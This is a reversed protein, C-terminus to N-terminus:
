NLGVAVIHKMDVYITKKDITFLIIWGNDANDIPHLIGSFEKGNDLTVFIDRQFLFKWFNVGDSIDVM